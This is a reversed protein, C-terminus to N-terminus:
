FKASIGLILSRSIPFSGYDTGASRADVGYCNVDPNWGSYTGATFLNTASLSVGLAKIWTRKLRIDYMASVRSLRLFDGNEVYSASLLQKGDGFLKSLNAIQHGAAGDFQIDLTFDKVSFKTGFGGHLKPISFGLPVKDSDTLAGDGNIDEPSGDSNERFGTITAVSMGDMKNQNLSLNGRVTWSILRARFIEAEADFEFGTNNLIASDSSLVQGQHAKTWFNGSHKGFFWVDFDDSTTKHYWKASLFIREHWFRTQLGVNWENSNIRGLGDYYIATGPVAEPFSTQYKYLLEYPISIEKGAKGWGATLKLDSVFKNDPLLIKKFDTFISAAPYIMPQNGYKPSFDVRVLANIGAYSNYDYAASLYTGALLHSRTFRYPVSRSGSAHVGHARLYPLEFSTGNIVGYKNYYGNVDGSINAKLHHRSAFYRNYELNVSANANLLASSLVSAAGANEKGFSTGEGYWIYRTNNQFDAGMNVRLLLAHSLKVNVFASILARYDKTDDDYDEVWGTKTDYPFLSPYRELMMLSPRGFYAAGAASSQKGVTLSSNLGFQIIASAESRFGLSIGGFDSKSHRDSYDNHRFYGSINYSTQKIKGGISASHNHGFGSFNWALNSHINILREEAPMRTSILIIGDAGQAGYLATESIDKLVTINEITYPDLFALDNLRSTYSLGSYDPIIDGKSTIGGRQWFADINDKPGNGLIVGDVIWLPQSDGRLSNLGRIQTSIFGNPNGDTLSIRVGSIRGRLLDAPSQASERGINLTDTVADQAWIPGGALFLLLLTIFKKM